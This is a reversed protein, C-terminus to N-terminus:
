AQEKKIFISTVLSVVAIILGGFFFVGIAMTFPTTVKATMELRQDIQEDTLNGSQMMEEEAAEMAQTVISPDIFKAFVFTYIAIVVVALIGITFGISFSKGYSIFGNSYVDRYVKQGWVIGAIYALFAIFRIDSQKPVDMVYFILDLIILVAATIMAYNLAIKFSSTQNEEM